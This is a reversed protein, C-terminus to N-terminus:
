SIGWIKHLGFTEYRTLLLRVSMEATLWYVATWVREDQKRLPWKLLRGEVDLDKSQRKEEPERVLIRYAKRKKVTYAVHGVGEDGQGSWGVIQTFNAFSRMVSHEADKQQYLKIVIV